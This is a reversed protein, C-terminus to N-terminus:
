PDPSSEPAHKHKYLYSLAVIREVDGSGDLPAEYHFRVKIRHIKSLRIATGFSSRLGRHDLGGATRDSFSETAVFPTFQSDTDLSLKLRNRLTTKFQNDDMDYRSQGRLRYSATFRGTTKESMGTLEFRHAEEFDGSKSRKQIYRYGTGIELLPHLAYRAEIAPMISLVSRANQDLRLHQTAELKLGQPSTHRFSASSWVQNDSDAHSTEPFVCFLLLALPLHKTLM